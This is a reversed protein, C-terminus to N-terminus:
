SFLRTRHLIVLLGGTFILVFTSLGSFVVQTTNQSAVLLPCLSLYLIITTVSGLLDCVVRSLTSTIIYKDICPSHM